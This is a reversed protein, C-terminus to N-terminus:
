VQGYESVEAGKQCPLILMGDGYSYFQYRSAVAENYIRRMFPYTTAAAVMALLTSEPLHFNTILGDCLRMPNGPHIFIDTQDQRPQLGLPDRACAELVRATTTGVAIVRGKRRRTERIAESLEEDILYTESHMPHDLLRETTVPKFTGLGVHLTLFARRVGVAELQELLGQSFHLGATPAAVAGPRSAYVTQYIQADQDTQESEGRERRQKVIYPPLPMQGLRELLELPSSSWSIKVTDQGPECREVIFSLSADASKLRQGPKLPKSTRTMCSLELQGGVVPESWRATAMDQGLLGLVFLEVKGGTEKTVMIRAPLVRTNNFVLLDDASLRAPLEEFHAHEISRADPNVVMMRARERRREPQSAILEDPLGYDYARTLSWDTDPESFFVDAQSM